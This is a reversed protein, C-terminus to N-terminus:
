EEKNVNKASKKFCFLVFFVLINLEKAELHSHTCIMHFALSFSNPKQYKPIIFPIVFAIRRGLTIVLKISPTTVAAVIIHSYM